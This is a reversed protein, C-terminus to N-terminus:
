WSRGAGGGGSMGGGFGGFGGGGFGGGGFGGRHRGGGYHRHRGGSLLLMALFPHRMFFILFIVVFIFGGVLQFPNGRRNGSGPTRVQPAGSWPVGADGAIIQAVAVTGNVIGAGMQGGRFFPVVNEDLIRGAKADPILRELGYGVEIQVKRDQVAV